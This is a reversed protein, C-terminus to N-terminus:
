SFCNILLVLLMIPSCWVLGQSAKQFTTRHRCQLNRIIELFHALESLNQAFDV